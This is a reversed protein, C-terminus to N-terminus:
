SCIMFIGEKTLWVVTPLRFSSSAESEALHLGTSSQKRQCLSDFFQPKLSAYALLFQGM